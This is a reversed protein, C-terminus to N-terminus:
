RNLKTPQISKKKKFFFFFNSFIYIYIQICIHIHTNFEKHLYRGIMGIYTALVESSFFLQPTPPCPYYIIAYM